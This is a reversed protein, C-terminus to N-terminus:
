IIGLIVPCIHKNLQFNEFSNFCLNYSNIKFALIIGKDFNQSTAEYTGIFYVIMLFWRTKESIKM